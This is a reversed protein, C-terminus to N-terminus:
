TGDMYGVSTCCRINAFFLTLSVVEFGDDELEVVNYSYQVRNGDTNLRITGTAGDMEM